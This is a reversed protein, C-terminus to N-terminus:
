FRMPQWECLAKWGDQQKAYLEFAEITDARSMKCAYMADGERYEVHLESDAGSVIAAQIFDNGNPHELTLFDGEPSDASRLREVVEKWNRVPVSGTSMGKAIQDLRALAARASNADETSTATNATFELADRAGETGLIEAFQVAVRTSALERIAILALKQSDRNASPSTLHPLLKEVAELERLKNAHAATQQAQRDLAENRARNAVEYTHTFYLGLVGLLTTAFIPTLRSFKDWRDKDSM